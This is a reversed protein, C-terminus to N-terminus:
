HWSVSVEWGPSLYSPQAGKRITELFAHYRKRENIEEVGRLRMHSIDSRLLFTEGLLCFHIGCSTFDSQKLYTHYPASLTEGLNVKLANASDVLM